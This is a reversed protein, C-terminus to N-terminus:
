RIGTSVSVGSLVKTIWQLLNTIITRTLIRQKQKEKNDKKNISHKFLQLAEQKSIADLNIQKGHKGQLLVAFPM